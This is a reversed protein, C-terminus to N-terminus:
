ATSFPEIVTSPTESVIVARVSSAKSTARTRCVSSAVVSPESSGPSPTLRSTSTRALYTSRSAARHPEGRMVADLEGIRLMVVDAAGVDATDEDGLTPAVANQGATEPAEVM